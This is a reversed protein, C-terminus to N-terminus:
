SIKTGFFKFEPFQFIWALPRVLFFNRSKNWLLAERNYVKQLEVLKEDIFEFDELIRDMVQKSPYSPNKEIKTFFDFVIHSVEREIAM